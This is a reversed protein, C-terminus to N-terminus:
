GQCAEEEGIAKAANMFVDECSFHIEISGDESIEIREVLEDSLDQQFAVEDLREELKEVQTLFAAVAKDANRQEKEAEKQEKKLRDRESLYHEKLEQYEENSIAGDALDEYLAAIRNETQSIEVKLKGAKRMARYLNGTQKSERKAKEILERRDCMSKILLHIQDAVFMQLFDANMAHHQTAARDSRKCWYETADRDRHRQTRYWMRKQCEKCYVKGPFRDYMDEMSTEFHKKPHKAKASLMEQVQDFDSKTILPEHANDIITWEDKATKHDKIGKYLAVQRRGWVLQGIYRSNRLIDVVRSLNWRDTDPCSTNQEVTLAYRLPTAIQLQNLRKAIQSTSYGMLYWRFIMQVTPATEPNPVFVNKERDIVYGFVTNQLKVTGTKRRMEHYNSVKRSFDKAYMENVMNKFPTAISNVDEERFSDFDDNIAILRVNLKPLLTEIYYGTELFDRGFRSLDKVVICQIRGEKVDDMMRVFDPRNFNTGSFGNDTYTGALQLEPNDAIYKEIMLVQTQISEDSDKDVSLRAYAATMQTSQIPASEVVYEQQPNLNKRSKRAM